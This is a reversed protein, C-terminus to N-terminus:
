QDLAPCSVSSWSTRQPGTTRTSTTGWLAAVPREPIRSPRPWMPLLPMSRTKAWSATSESFVGMHLTILDYSLLLSLIWHCHPVYLLSVSQLNQELWKGQRVFFCCIFVCVFVHKGRNLETQMQDSKIAEKRRESDKLSWKACFFYSPQCSPKWMSDVVSPWRQDILSQCDFEIM